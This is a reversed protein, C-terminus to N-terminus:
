NVWTDVYWEGELVKRLTLTPNKQGKINYISEKKGLKCKVIKGERLNGIAKEASISCWANASIEWSM